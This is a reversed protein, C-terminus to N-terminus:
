VGPAADCAVTFTTTIVAGTSVQKIRLTMALSSGNGNASTAGCAASMLFSRSASLSQYTAAPNTKSAPGSEIVTETYAFQIQSDSATWGSPLWTGSAPFGVITGSGGGSAVVNATLSYTGASSFALTLNVSAGPQGGVGSATGAVSYTNGQLAPINYHVSGKAAFIFKLDVNNVKYNTLAAQSGLYLPAFLDRLDTDVGAIKVTYGTLDAKAGSVYPEFIQDLPVDNVTPYAM